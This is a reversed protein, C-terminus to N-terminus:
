KKPQGYSAQKELFLINIIVSCGRAREELLLVLCLTHVAQIRASLDMATEMFMIVKGRRYLPVMVTKLIKIIIYHSNYKKFYIDYQDDIYYTLKLINTPLSKYEFNNDLNITIFDDDNNFGIDSITFVDPQKKDLLQVIYEINTSINTNMTMNIYIYKAEVTSPIKCNVTNIKM